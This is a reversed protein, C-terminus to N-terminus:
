LAVEKKNERVIDDISGFILLFPKIFAFVRVMRGFMKNHQLFYSSLM